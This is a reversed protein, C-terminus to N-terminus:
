STITAVRVYTRLPERGHGRPPRRPRRGSGGSRADAGAPPRPPPRPSITRSRRACPRGCGQALRHQSVRLRGIQDQGGGADAARSPARVRQRDAQRQPAPPAHRGAGHDAHHLRVVRALRDRLAAPGRRRAARAAPTAKRVAAAWAAVRERVHPHLLAELWDLAARDHFVVRALAARNVTGDISSRTASTTASPPSSRRGRPPSICSVDDLDRRRRVRALLRARYVQRLRHRRDCGTPPTTTRTM